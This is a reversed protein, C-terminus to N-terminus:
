SVAGRRAARDLSDRATRVNLIRCENLSDRVVMNMASANRRTAPISLVTTLREARVRIAALSDGRWCSASRSAGLGTRNWIARDSSPGALGESGGPTGSGGGDDLSAINAGIGM